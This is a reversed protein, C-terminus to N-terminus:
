LLSINQVESHSIKYKILAAIFSSLGGGNLERIESLDREEIGTIVKAEYLLAFIHSQIIELKDDPQM